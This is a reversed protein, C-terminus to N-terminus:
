CELLLMSHLKAPPVTRTSVVEPLGLVVVHEHREKFKAYPCIDELGDDPEFFDTISLQPREQKTDVCEHTYDVCVTHDYIHKEKEGHPLYPLHQLLDIVKDSKGLFALRAQTIQPWGTPPPTKLDTLEFHLHTILFNYFDTVSATVEDRDYPM